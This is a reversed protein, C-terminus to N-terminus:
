ASLAKLRRDAAALVTKRRRHAQEYLRVVAVEAPQAQELRAVVDGANMSAYSPWPEDISVEAGAGDEAGPDAFEDVLVPEESVHDEAPVPASPASGAAPAETAAAPAEAEAAPAAPAETATADPEAAPAAPQARAPEADWRVPERPRVPPTWPEAAQATQEDGGGAVIGGATRILTEAGRLALRLPLTALQTLTGIM